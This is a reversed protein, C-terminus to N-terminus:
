QLPTGFVHGDGFGDYLGGQEFFFRNSLSVPARSRWAPGTGRVWQCGLVLMGLSAAACSSALTMDDEASEIQTERM